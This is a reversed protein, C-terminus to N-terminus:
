LRADTLDPGSELNIRSSPVVYSSRQHSKWRGTIGFIQLPSDEKEYVSKDLIAKRANDIGAM